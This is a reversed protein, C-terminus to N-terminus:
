PAPTLVPEVAAPAVALQHAAQLAKPVDVLGHGSENDFGVARMDTATTTLIEHVQAPTLAPNVQLLLAVVGAIHPAAMSTGSAAGYWAKNVAQDQTTAGYDGGAKGLAGTLSPPLVTSLIDTGPASVDVSPGRSSFSAMTKPNCSHVAKCSAAVTIVKDMGNPVAGIAKAPHDNGAAFVMVVGADVVKNIVAALPDYTPAGFITDTGTLGWSNNVVGIGNPGFEPDAHHRLVWDIAAIANTEWGADDPLGNHLDAMKLSVLDAGPAVGHNPRGASSTGEGAVIGAVHTGHGWDDVTSTPGTTSYVLDRQGADMKPGYVYQFEFNLEKVVRNSLDPHQAWIGTDLVAVTQGAGTVGPRTFTQDGVSYDSPTKVADAGIQKVSAYLNLRLKRQDYVDAVRPDAEWRRLVRVPATLAVSKVSAFGQAHVIGDARLASAMDAPIRDKFVIVARHMVAGPDGSGQAPLTAGLVALLAASAILLRRARM